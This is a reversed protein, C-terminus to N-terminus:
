TRKPVSYCVAPEMPQRTGYQKCVTFTLVFDKIHSTMGRRYITDKARRTCNRVGLHPRHIEQMTVERVARPIVLREGRFVLCNETTLEDRVAPEMPQRTGYQKCVTFTLVFDKIHSTMGRRYITDKARRTCNRVGLHPRHIEQMTVERVARPIVLREGRFVLCNETTLEDRVEKGDSFTQKIRPLRLDSKALMLHVQQYGTGNDKDTTLLVRSLTDALVM